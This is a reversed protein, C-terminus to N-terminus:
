SLFYTIFFVGEDDIYTDESKSFNWGGALFADEISQELAENKKLFYLEVQYTNSRWYATGDAQLQTQGSGIYVLHPYREGDVFHSYASPIDLDNKIGALVTVIDERNSITTM